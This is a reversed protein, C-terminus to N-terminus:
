AEEPKNHALLEREWDALRSGVYSEYEIPSYPRDPTLFWERLSDACVACLTDTTAMTDREGWYRIVTVWAEPWVHSSTQLTCRDCKAEYTTTIM